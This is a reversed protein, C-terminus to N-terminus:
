QNCVPLNVYVFSLCTCTHVHHVAIGDFSTLRFGRIEHLVVNREVRLSVTSLQEFGDASLWPHFRSTIGCARVWWSSSFTCAHECELRKMDLVCAHVWMCVACVLCTGSVRTCVHVLVALCTGLACACPM